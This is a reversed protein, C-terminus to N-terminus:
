RSLQLPGYKEEILKNWAEASGGFVTFFIPNVLGSGLADNIFPAFFTERKSGISMTVARGVPRGEQDRLLGHFAPHNVPVRYSQGYCFATGLVPDPHEPLSSDTDLPCRFKNPPNFDKLDSPDIRSRGSLRAAFEESYERSSDILKQLEALSRKSMEVCRETLDLGEVQSIRECIKQLVQEYREQGAEGSYDPRTDVITFNQIGDETKEGKEFSWYGGIQLSMALHLDMMREMYPTKLLKKFDDKTEIGMMEFLGRNAPFMQSLGKELCADRDKQFSQLDFGLTTGSAAVLILTWLSIFLRPRIVDKLAHLIL